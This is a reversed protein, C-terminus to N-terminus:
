GLLRGARQIVGRASDWRGEFVHKNLDGWIAWPIMCFVDFDDGHCRDVIFACLSSVPGGKSRELVRRLTTDM